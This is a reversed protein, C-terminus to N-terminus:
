LVYCLAISIAKICVNYNDYYNNKIITIKQMVKSNSNYVPLNKETKKM